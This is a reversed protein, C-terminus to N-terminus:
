WVDNHKCRTDAALVDETCWKKQYTTRTAFAEPWQTQTANTCRLSRLEMCASSEAEIRSRSREGVDGGRGGGGWCGCKVRRAWLWPVMFGLELNIRSSILWRKLSCLVLNSKHKESISWLSPERFCHKTALSRARSVRRVSISADTVLYIRLMLSDRVLCSTSDSRFQSRRMRIWLHALGSKERLCLKM